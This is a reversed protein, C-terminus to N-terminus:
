KLREKSPVIISFIVSDLYNHVSIEGDMKEEIIIKAMYLGFGTGDKSTTFYPDFVFDIIDEPIAGSDDSIEILTKDRKAEVHITISQGKKTTTIKNKANNIINLLVQKFENEYGFVQVSSDKCTISLKIHSYFLQREVIELVEDLAKKACFIAKKTSPKLFNRFDKHTQSMYQIQIMSEKVFDKMMDSNMEGQSYSFEIDQLIASLEVLPENWQHAIATVMEGVEALKSRQILFQKQQNRETVDDMVTVIGGIQGDINSYVTKNLTMVRSSGDEFHLTGEFNDTARSKLLEKDKNTQEQAWESSFFDFVSRGLVEQKTKGLLDVFAKNCGIYEGKLNKYHIPNPMSDMLVSVFKLQNTLAIESKKRRTASVILLILIVVIVTVVFVALWIIYKHKEYFSFPMNIKRYIEIEDPVRINNKKLMRYDFMYRNPSKTLIPIERPTTGKFIAEIMGIVSNAQAAASTLLGGVIGEGLYFDWLGYIPVQSVGKIQRLSEKYTFFKGAKDKFLLVWLIATNKPLNEVKRKLNEIEINDIYEFTLRDEFEPLVRYIDRRIAQGTRSRDNIILLKELDPHIKLILDINNRIDVEEVVGTIYSRMNNEYIMAEDFNNIGLFVVPLGKFLHPHYRIVFELANNDVAVILDFERGRFQEEFLEFLRDFYLQTAIKKTDMYVTTLYTDASKDFHKEVVRSVDDSWKYGRHYSHILLIDKSLASTLLNTSFIILLLLSRKFM